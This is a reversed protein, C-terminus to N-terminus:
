PLLPCCTSFGMLCLFHATNATSTSPARVFHHSHHKTASLPVSSCSSSRHHPPQHTAPMLSSQHISLTPDVRPWPRSGPFSLFFGSFNSKGKKIKSSSKGLPNSDRGIGSNLKCPSSLTPRSPLSIPPPLSSAGSIAARLKKNQAPQSEDEVVDMLSLTRHQYTYMSLCVAGTLCATPGGAM